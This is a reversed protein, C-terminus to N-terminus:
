PKTKPALHLAREVSKVIGKGHKEPAAPDSGGVVIRTPVDPQAADEAIARALAKRDSERVAAARKDNQAQRAPDLTPNVAQVPVAAPEATVMNYIWAGTAALVLGIAALKFGRLIEHPLFGRLFSGGMFIAALFFAAAIEYAFTQIM